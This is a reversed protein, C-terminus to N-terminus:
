YYTHGQNGTQLIEKVQKDYEVFCGALPTSPTFHSATSYLSCYMNFYLKMDYRM